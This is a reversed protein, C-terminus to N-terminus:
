DEKKELIFSNFGYTNEESQQLTRYTKNRYKVIDGIEIDVTDKVYLTKYDSYRFGGDEANLGIGKDFQSFKNGSTIVGFFSSEVAVDPIWDNNADYSGSVGKKVLTLETLMLSNFASHMSMAM